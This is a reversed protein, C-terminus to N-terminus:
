VLARYITGRRVGESERCSSIGAGEESVTRLDGAPRTRRRKEQYERTKIELTEQSDERLKM